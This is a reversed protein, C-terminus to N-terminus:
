SGLHSVSKSLFAEASVIQRPMLLQKIKQALEDRTFPKPLLLIGHEFQCREILHDQAYGTTLLVKLQPRLRLAEEALETGSMGPLGVDSFLLAFDTSEQLTELATKANGAERVRYGLDRLIEASYARVDPDDEVVLVTGHVQENSKADSDLGPVAGSEEVNARPLYLKVTTGQGPASDIKVHGGTQKIFGYVQSLGLGTGQGVPKTSFFPEFVRDLVDKEIGKGTDSISLLVYRGPAIESEGAEHQEDVQCNAADITLRGHGDMADRANIAINLIANDLQNIDAFAQWLGSAVHTEIDINEGLTRRLLDSMSALMAVLDAAHPELPQRRSFVLLRQTLVAGRNAADFANSAWRHLRVEGRETYKKLLELNGLVATLLNNFDHAIGGTLQGISELKQAQRLQAEAQEREAVAKNREEDAVTLAEYTNFQRILLWLVFCLAVVCFLAGVAILAAAQHWDALIQEIGKSINVVLPFQKVPMTAVIRPQGDLGEATEYTVPQDDRLMGNFAAIKFIHGIGQLSPYRALLTADRRWLSVAGHGGLGLTRYLNDFYALDIAAVVLGLFKKSAGNIRRALYITWTGSDNQVPLSLYSGSNPADKLANFYDSGAVNSEPAPYRTSSNILRGDFGIISVSALQPIGVIRSKLLMYTTTDSQSRILQLPKTMGDLALDQQLSTLVLDVSQLTRETEEALLLDLATLERKEDNIDRLRLERIALGAGICVLLIVLVGFGIIIPKPQILSRRSGDRRLGRYPLLPRKGEKSGWNRM